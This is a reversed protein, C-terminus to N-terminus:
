RLDDENAEIADAYLEYLDNILDESANDYYREIIQKIQIRVHTTCM